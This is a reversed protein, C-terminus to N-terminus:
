AKRTAELKAKWKARGKVKREKMGVKAKVKVKM